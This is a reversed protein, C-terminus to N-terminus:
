NSVFRNNTALGLIVSTVALYCGITSLYVSKLIVSVPFIEVANIHLKPVVKHLKVADKILIFIAM